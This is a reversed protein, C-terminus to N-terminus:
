EDRLALPKGLVEAAVIGRVLARRDPFLGALRPVRAAESPAAPAIVPPPIAAPAAVIPVVPPAPQATPVPTVHAQADRKFQDILTALEPTLQMGQPTRVNVKVASV